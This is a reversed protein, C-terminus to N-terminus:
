VESKNSERCKKEEDGTSVDVNNKKEQAKNTKRAKSGRGNRRNM